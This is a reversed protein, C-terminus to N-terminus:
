RITTETSSLIRRWSATNIDLARFVDKALEDGYKLLLGEMDPALQAILGKVWFATSEHGIALEKGSYFLRAQVFIYVRRGYPWYEAYDIIVAFCKECPVEVQRFGMNNVADKMGDVVKTANAIIKQPPNLLLPLDSGHMVRDEEKAKSELEAFNNADRYVVSTSVYVPIDKSKLSSLERQIDMSVDPQQPFPTPRVTIATACGSLIAVFLMVALIRKM